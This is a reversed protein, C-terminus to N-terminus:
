PTNNKGRIFNQTQDQARRMQLGSKGNSAAQPLGDVLNGGHVEYLLRVVSLMHNEQVNHKLFFKFVACSKVLHDLRLAGNCTGLYSVYRLRSLSPNFNRCILIYSSTFTSKEWMHAAPPLGGVLNGGPSSTSCSQKLFDQHKM